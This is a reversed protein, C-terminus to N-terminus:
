RHYETDKQFSVGFDYYRNNHFYLPNGVNPEKGISQM